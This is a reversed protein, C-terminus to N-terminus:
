VWLPHTLPSVIPILFTIPNSVLSVASFHAKQSIGISTNMKEYIFSTRILPPHSDPIPNQSRILPTLFLTGLIQFGIQLTPSDDLIMPDVNVQPMQNVM